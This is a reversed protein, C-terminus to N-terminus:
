GPPTPTGCSTCFKADGAVSAGCQACAPAPPGTVTAPQAGAQVPVARAALVEAVIGMLKDVNRQNKGFDILAFKSSSAIQLWTQRPATETIQIPVDEGWSWFNVGVQILVYGANPDAQKVKMGPLRNTAELVANFVEERSNPFQADGEGSTLSAM